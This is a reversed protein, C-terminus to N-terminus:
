PDLEDAIHFLQDPTLPESRRLLALARLGQALQVRPTQLAPIFLGNPDKAPDIVALLARTDPSLPKSM